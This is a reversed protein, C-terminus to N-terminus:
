DRGALGSAASEALWTMLLERVEDLDRRVEAIVAAPVPGSACYPALQVEVSRAARAADLEGLLTASSALAHVDRTVAAAALASADVALEAANRTLRPLRTALEGAFARALAEHLAADDAPSCAASDTM